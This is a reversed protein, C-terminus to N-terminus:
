EENKAEENKILKNILLVIIFSFIIMIATLIQAKKIEGSEISFYILLPMTQTQGPINGAVILTAGFEGISRVLSLLIGVFIGNFSLPLSIYKFIQWSSAGEIKAAEKVEKRVSKFGLKANQYMLPITVIISAFCAAKWNFIINWGFWDYFYKGIIGRRGVLILLIYGVVTPPLSMPLIIITEMLTKFKFNYKTFIYALFTGVLFTIFVSILSVKISLLIANIM